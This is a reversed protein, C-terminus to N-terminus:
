PLWEFPEPLAGKPKGNGKPKPKAQYARREHWVRLYFDHLDDDRVSNKFNDYGINLAAHSVVAAFADRDIFCRFPYDNKPTALIKAGPFTAALHARKAACEIGCCRRQRRCM